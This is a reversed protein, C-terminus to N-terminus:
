DKWWSFGGDGTEEFNGGAPLQGESQYTPAAWPGPNDGAFPNWGGGGTGSGASGGLSGILGGVGGGIGKAIEAWDTSTKNELPAAAGIGQTAAALTSPLMTVPVAPSPKSLAIGGIIIAALILLEM